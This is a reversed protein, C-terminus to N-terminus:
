IGGKAGCDNCEWLMRPRQGQQVIWCATMAHEHQVFRRIKVHEKRVDEQNEGDKELARVDEDIIPIGNSMAYQKLEWFDPAPVKLTRYITPQVEGVRHPHHVVSPSPHFREVEIEQSVPVEVPRILRPGISPRGAPVLVGFGQTTDRARLIIPQSAKDVINTRAGTERTGSFRPVNSQDVRSQSINFGRTVARTTTKACKSDNDAANIHVM